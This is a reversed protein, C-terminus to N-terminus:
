SKKVDRVVFQGSHQASPGAARNYRGEDERDAGGDKRWGLVCLANQQPTYVKTCRLSVVLSDRVVPTCYVAANWIM